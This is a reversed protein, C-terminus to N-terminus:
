GFKTVPISRVDDLEAVRLGLQILKEVRNHGLGAVVLNIHDGM